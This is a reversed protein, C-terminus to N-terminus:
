QMAEAVQEDGPLQAQQQAMMQQQMMMMEVEQPDNLISQDVGMKEAIFSVAQQVNIAMQGAPGMANAIQMFNLVKNVEEMKPAEALPSIPTIKIQVGDVKLPMNILGQRDLVTLIRAILPNMIETMLRGFASGLNTALEAQRQAIETASRASMTDPPLTDDMLVKKINMRLDNMVIQSTNFDGGRPLPALSAGQPGGNRAVPIIAGPQIKVNQPNLVGDDAALFVGSISLSANKLVLEVTKNLTKIDAIADVLPGRGYIEGATKSFRAVIFPNSTMERYVLEQSKYPWIVHYHYRGTEQDFIIADFLDLEENGRQDIADQLETTINVDPFERTIAEAKIRLKRYVNDVIGYAGEEVAVLYQPIAIFRLPTVEDGPMIMMVATGVCLDLLFEGMALDFSTQRLQDFMIDTYADLIEQAQGQQEKPIGSGPELRCWHRNPPFLGSQLRNAFRKTSSMATSDFVRQMKAKGPVKGEYYGNYLNRQPLAFEYCDEYITRWEDKRAQAKAERGMVEKVNLKPM